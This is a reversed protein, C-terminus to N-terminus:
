YGFNWNWNIVKRSAVFHERDVEPWCYVFKRKLKCQLVKVKNIKMVVTFWRVISIWMSFVTTLIRIGWCSHYDFFDLIPEFKLPYLNPSMLYSWLNVSCFAFPCALFTTINEFICYRFSSFSIFLILICFFIAL